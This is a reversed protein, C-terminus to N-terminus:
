DGLILDVAVQPHDEHLLTWKPLLRIDWGYVARIEERAFRLHARSVRVEEIRREIIILPHARVSLLQLQAGTISELECNNKALNRRIKHIVHLSIPIASAITGLLRCGVPILINDQGHLDRLVEIRFFLACATGIRKVVQKLVKSGLFEELLNREFLIHCRVQVDVITYSSKQDGELLFVKM